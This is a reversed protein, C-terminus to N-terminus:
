STMRGFVAEKPTWGRELRRRIEKAKTGSTDAWDPLSMSQDDITLIQVSRRNRANTRADVWRVNGPEYHGSPNIRDLYHDQSPKPGLDAFFAVFNDRWISCVRIGRGGYYKYSVNSKNYCRSKMNIWARYEPTKGGQGHIWGVHAGTPPAQRVQYEWIGDSPEGRRRREVTHRGFRPKRLDRLRASVSAETGGTLSQIERLTRWKGDSMVAYVKGLLTNLRAGDLAPDYTKGDFDFTTQM